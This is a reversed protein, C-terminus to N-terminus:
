TFPTGVNLLLVLLFILQCHEFKLKGQGSVGKPPKGQVRLLKPFIILVWVILQSYKRDIYITTNICTWHKGQRSTSQTTAQPQAHNFNYQAIILWILTINFIICVTKM